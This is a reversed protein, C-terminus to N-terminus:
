PAHQRTTRLHHLMTILGSFEAAHERRILSALTASACAPPKVAFAVFNKVPRSPSL